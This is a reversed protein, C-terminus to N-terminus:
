LCHFADFALRLILRLQECISLRVFVLDLDMYSFSACLKNPCQAFVYIFTTPCLTLIIEFVVFIDVLLERSVWRRRIEGFVLHKM